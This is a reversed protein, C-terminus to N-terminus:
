GADLLEDFEGFDIATDHFQVRVFGNLSEFLVYLLLVSKVGVQNGGFVLVIVMLPSSNFDIEGMNLRTVLLTGKVNLTLSKRIKLSFICHTEGTVEFETVFEVVEFL